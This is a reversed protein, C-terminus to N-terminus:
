QDVIKHKQFIKILLDNVFILGYCCVFIVLFNFDGM